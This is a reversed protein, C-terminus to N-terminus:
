TLFHIGTFSDDVLGSIGLISPFGGRGQIHKRPDFDLSRTIDKTNTVIIPPEKNHEGRSQPIWFNLRLYHTTASFTKDHGKHCLM